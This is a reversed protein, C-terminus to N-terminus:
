SSLGASRVLTVDTAVASSGHVSVRLTVHRLAELRALAKPSLALRLQAPGASVRRSLTALTTVRRTGALSSGRAVLTVTIRTSGAAAQLSLTLGTDALRTRTLKRTLRLTAIARPKVVTYILTTASTWGAADTATATLTHAGAASSYGAVSCASIGSTPDSASCTVDGAKPIATTLYSRAGIGAVIPASPPTADVKLAVPVATTGGASTVTCALPPGGDTAVGPECGVPDVVPSEPDSISWAVAVPTHYWGNAGDPAAPALVPTVVPPTPDLAMAVMSDARDFGAGCAIDPVGPIAPCDFANAPSRMIAYLEEVPMAPRASRILAAIGAAAPAAASTGQFASFGTVGTTVADASAIDPKQRTEPAALPSGAAGFYQVVPGRSSYAEPVTPASYRSAAVTVVGAATAAGPWITGTAVPYQFTVTGAGDTFDVLKLLPTGVGARRRIAVGFTLASTGANIVASEEPLGTVLNNDDVTGLLTAGNYVDLAFDTTAGGWPEAWQLVVQASGNAPITGVTQILDVGAAPNFDESAGAGSASFTGQWGQSADNGAAAFYAVGAAEARDAAQAVIGDQFFPDSLYSTDDAIVSVGHAVLDDIAAAKGAPGGSNATTFAIGSIGPAEGYVIEAM